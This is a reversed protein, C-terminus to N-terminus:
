LTGAFITVALTYLPLASTVACLNRSFFPGTKDSCLVEMSAIEQLASLHTVIAKEGMLTSAGVALTVTMVMPLAVPVSAILLALASIATQPLLSFLPRRFTLM